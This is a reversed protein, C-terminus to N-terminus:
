AALRRSPRAHADQSQLAGDLAHELRAQLAAPILTRDLARGIDVALEDLLLARVLAKIPADPATSTLIIPLDTMLMMPAIRTATTM